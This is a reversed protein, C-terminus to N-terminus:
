KACQELKQFFRRLVPILISPINIDHRSQYKGLQLSVSTINSCTEGHAHMLSNGEANNVWCSVGRTTAFEIDLKKKVMADRRGIKTKSRPLPQGSEPANPDFHCNELDIPGSHRPLRGQLLAARSFVRQGAVEEPRLFFVAVFIVIFTLVILAIAFWRPFPGESNDIIIRRKM